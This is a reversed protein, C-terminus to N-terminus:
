ADDGDVTHPHTCVVIQISLEGCGDCSAARRDVRADRGIHGGTAGSVGSLHPSGQDREGIQDTLNGQYHPRHQRLEIRDIAALLDRGHNPVPDTSM